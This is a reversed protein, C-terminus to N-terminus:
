ALYFILILIEVSVLTLYTSIHPLRNGPANERNPKDKILYVFLFPFYNYGVPEIHKM